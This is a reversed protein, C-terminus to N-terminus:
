IIAGSIDIKEGKERQQQQQRLFHATNHKVTNYQPSVFIPLSQCMFSIMILHFDFLKGIIKFHKNVKGEGPFFNEERRWSWKISEIFLLYIERLSFCCCSKSMRPINRWKEHTKFHIYLSLISPQFKKRRTGSKEKRDTKDHKKKWSWRRRWRQQVIQFQTISTTKFM